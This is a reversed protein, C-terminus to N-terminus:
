VHMRVYAILKMRVSEVFKSFCIHGVYSGWIRSEGELWVFKKKFIM